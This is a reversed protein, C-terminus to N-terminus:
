PPSVCDRVRCVIALADTYQPKVLFEFLYPWLVTQMSAVTTTALNLINDAMGRFKKPTLDVPKKSKKM